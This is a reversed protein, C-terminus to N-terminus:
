VMKVDILQQFHEEMTEQLPRYNLDLDNKGKSNDAQWPYGVNLKISKRTLSKNALPGVLWVLWKPLTRTPIPYSKGYKDVLLNAMKPFSTNHACIIYRGEASPTFAANFHATAVDRVDVIGMGWDPIGAKFTGDGIQQLLRFSESNKAPGIGPGMILSPNITILSWRNQEKAVKWALKEAQTKSFSYPKHKLTSTNNWDKETFMGTKTNKSEINDGYIAVVSSTLIVKLVSSEKNVSNLVNKTGLEAPEVLDKLPSKVDVIFPSATHFVIQCGKIAQDFSNEKLLDASFFKINGPLEQNLQNLYKLKETNNPDRVTAHITLGAELLKKALQGALYGTAGTLMVPKNTNIEIM